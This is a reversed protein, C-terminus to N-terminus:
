FRYCAKIRFNVGDQILEKQRFESSTPDKIRQDFLNYVTGSLELNKIIDKALLTVNVTWYGPASGGDPKDRRSVYQAELGGYLKSNIPVTLNLKSLSGPSNAARRGTEKDKVHQFSQSFRLNVNNLWTKDIELELGKGIVSGTNKFVMLDDTDVVTTIMDSGEFYFGSATLRLGNSFYKEAVLEYSAIREPRLSPNAKTFVNGDNYYLEYVNPARFAQGYLAKIIMMPRPSYVLALRPNTSSGFTTYRDYRVGASLTLNDRLVVEDQAYLGLVDSGRSDHLNSFASGRDYNDQSQRVNNEYTAGLTVFHRSGLRRALMVETGWWNGVSHDRNLLPPSDNLLYFGDFRYFDYYLRFLVDVNNAMTGNYALDLYFRKDITKDRGSGFVTEWAATPIVKERSTFASEFSLGKISAKAFASVVKEGDCHGARGNNTEPTDFEKYYFNQGKSDYGTASILADLGSEFRQGFTARGGYSDWSGASAAVETGGVDRGRKTLVNVVGFFANSGYLSSGPGRIIEVRDILDVDVIFENGIMMQNYINDNLRHGNVLLLMRTNYDGPRSLGRIGVYQYNRDNTVYFSRQAKLIDALTRYGFKKIDDATIISIASPADTVKQEFKSAGYVTAVKVGMLEEIPLEALNPEERAGQSVDARCPLIMVLCLLFTALLFVSRKGVAYQQPKTKM